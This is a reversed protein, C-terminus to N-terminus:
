ACVKKLQVKINVDVDSWTKAEASGPKKHHVECKKQLSTFAKEIKWQLIDALAATLNVEVVDGEKSEILYSAPVNLTEGNMTIAVQAQGQNAEMVKAKIKNGKMQQFFFKSLTQDRAPNNDTKVTKSQIVLDSQLMLDEVTLSRSVKKPGTLTMKQFTAKVGVREEKPAFKYATWTLEPADKGLEYHCITEKGQAAATLLALTLILTTKLTM